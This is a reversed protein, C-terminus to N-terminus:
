KSSHVNGLAKIYAVIDKIKESPLFNYTPMVPSYGAVVKKSPSKLSQIIYASDATLTSGGKLTIKHGYLNNLPPGTMSKGNTSHCNMCGQHSAIKKGQLAEPSLNAKQSSVNSSLNTKGAKGSKQGSCAALFLLASAFIVAGLKTHNM